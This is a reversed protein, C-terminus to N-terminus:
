IAQANEVAAKELKDANSRHSLFKMRVYPSTYGNLIREVRGPKNYFSQFAWSTLEGVQQRTLFKTPMVAHELDWLGLEKIEVVNEKIARKWIPSGPIPNLAQIM